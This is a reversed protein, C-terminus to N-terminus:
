EMDEVNEAQHRVAIVEITNTNEIIRYFISYPFKKPLARRVEKYVCVFIFPNTALSKICDMVSVFFLYGLGASKLEYWDYAKDIQRYAKETIEIKYM